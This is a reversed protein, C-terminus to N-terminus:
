IRAVLSVRRLAHTDCRDNGRTLQRKSRLYSTRLSFAQLATRDLDSCYLLEDCQTKISRAMSYEIPQRDFYM